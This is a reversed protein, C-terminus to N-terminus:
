KVKNLFIYEQIKIERSMEDTWAIVNIDSDSKKDYYTIRGFGDNEQIFTATTGFKEVFFDLLTALRINGIIM